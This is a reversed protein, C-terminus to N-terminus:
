KSARFRNVYMDRLCQATNELLRLVESEGLVIARLAPDQGVQVWITPVGDVLVPGRVLRVLARAM